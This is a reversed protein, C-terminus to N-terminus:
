EPGFVLGFFDVSGSENVVILTRGDPACWVWKPGPASTPAEGVVLGSRLDVLQVKGSSANTVAAHTGDGFLASGWAGSGVSLRNTVERTSTNVVYLKNEVFDTAYATSGSVFFTRPAPGLTVSGTVANTSRSILWLKRHDNCSETSTGAVGERGLVFYSTSGTVVSHPCSRAGAALDVTALISGADNRVQLKGESANTVVYGTSGGRPAGGGVEFGFAVHQTTTGPFINFCSNGSGVAMFRNTSQSIMFLDNAGPCFDPITGFTGPASTNAVNFATLTGTATAVVYLSTGFLTAGGVTGDHTRSALLQLRLGAATYGFAANCTIDTSM